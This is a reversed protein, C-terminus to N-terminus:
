FDIGGFNEWKHYIDVYIYTTIHKGWKMNVVVLKELIPWQLCSVIYQLAQLTDLVVVIVVIVDYMVVIVDHNMVVLWKMNAMCVYM